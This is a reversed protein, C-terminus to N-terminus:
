TRSRWIRPNRHLHLVGFVVVQDAVVRFFVGYPFRAMLARRVSVAVEPFQLPTERIRALLRDLNDVFALALAARESSYWAVAAEVDDEAEPRLTLRGNM